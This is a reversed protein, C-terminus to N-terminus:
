HFFYHGVILGLPLDIMTLLVFLVRGDSDVLAVAVVILLSILNGSDRKTLNICDSDPGIIPMLILIAM